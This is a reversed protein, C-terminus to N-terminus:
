KRKDVVIVGEKTGIIARTAVGYFLSTEVVGTISKVAPNVEALPPWQQVFVDILYNGNRTIVAGDQKDGMRLKITAGKLVSEITHIVHQLSEPILEVVLPYKTELQQVQKTDDGIIVFEKAMTALLKEHTHIGGGSKLANLDKDFQDCGDFYIDLTKASSIDQVMFGENILLQKTTFSSTFIKLTSAKSLDEKLFNVVHAITSGAGLGITMNPQILTAAHRAAEKKLDM